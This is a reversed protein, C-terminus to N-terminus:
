SRIRIRPHARVLLLTSGVVVAAGAWTWADPAEHFLLLGWGAAFVIQLYGVASTRGARELRFAWTTFVQGLHAFLGVGLLVALTGPGPAVPHLAVIPLSVATSVAAFWFVILMPAEERLRRVVVYAVGTLLAGLLGVGVAVPDLASVHGFLFTPRAVMVVGGLSAVVLTVERSAMTEGLLLAAALATWMPNTFQLVTADALPLHVVAYYVCTLAGLGLIGRLLLLGPERGLWPTRGRWVSAGSLLAVVTSRALVLEFVPVDRGALKALASMLSFSFAGAAM